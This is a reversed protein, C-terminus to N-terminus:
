TAVGKAAAEPPGEVATLPRAVSELSKGEARVGLFLEVIAAFIMFGAGILYAIFLSARDGTATLAGFIAPAAVGGVGTGIGYFLAIALARVEMPFVESVTLYAASAAASAFFFIICWLITQTVATLTDQLFLYGTLALLTGSILYCGSIMPVRGLTDFLRGLLLPGVFNGIAFPFIYYGVSSADIGYFEGLILGYTFFIANYLFAQSAMLTLGLFTRRPYLRFMSHLVPGFGTADRQEIHVPREEVPPLERGTSGRVQEEINGTIEEAEDNRGHIALWRPSEPLFRRILLVALGLIGGFLFAIRWGYYQDVVNENLLVISLASGMM